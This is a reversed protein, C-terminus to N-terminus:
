IPPSARSLLNHVQRHKRLRLQKMQSIPIIVNVGYAAQLILHSLDCLGSLVPGPRHVGDIKAVITKIIIRIMM